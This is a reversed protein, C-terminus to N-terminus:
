LISQEGQAYFKALELLHGIQFDARSLWPYYRAHGVM